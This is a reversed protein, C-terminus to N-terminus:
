MGRPCVAKGNANEVITGEKGGVMFPVEETPSPEDETLDRATDPVATMDVVRVLKPSQQLCSSVASGWAQIDWSEKATYQDSIPTDSTINTDKVVMLNIPLTFYIPQV